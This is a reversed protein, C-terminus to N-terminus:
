CVSPSPSPGDIVCVKPWEYRLAGICCDQPAGDVWLEYVGLVVPACNRYHGAGNDYEYRYIVPGPIRAAVKAARRAAAAVGAPSQEYALQSALIHARFREVMLRVSEPTECETAVLEYENFDAVLARQQAAAADALEQCAEEIDPLGQFHYNVM